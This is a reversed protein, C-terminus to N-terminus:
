NPIAVHKRLCPNYVCVCVCLCVHLTASIASAGPDNERNTKITIKMNNWLGVLLVHCPTNQIFSDATRRACVHARM